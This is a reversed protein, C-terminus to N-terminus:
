QQRHRIVHGQINLVNTTGAFARLVGSNSLLQGIAIPQMLTKAAITVVGNNVTATGGWQLTLDVAASHVSSVYLFLQDKDDADASATHITTGPSSTAAVAIPQELSASGSLSVLKESM